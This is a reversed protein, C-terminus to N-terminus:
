FQTVPYYLIFAYHRGENIKYQISEIHIVQDYERFFLNLLGVLVDKNIAELIEVKM